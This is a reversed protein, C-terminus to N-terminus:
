GIGRQAGQAGGLCRARAGDCRVPLLAVAHIRRRAYQEGARKTDLGAEELREKYSEGLKTLYGLDDDDMKTAAGAGLFQILQEKSINNRVVM